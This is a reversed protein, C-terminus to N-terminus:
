YQTYIGDSNTVPDDRIIVVEHVTYINSAHEDYDIRHSILPPGRGELEMIGGAIQNRNLGTDREIKKYGLWCERNENGSAYRRLEFYLNLSERSLGLTYLSNPIMVFGGELDNWEDTNLKGLGKKPKTVSRHAMRAPSTVTGIIPCKTVRFRYTTKLTTTRPEITHPDLLRRDSAQSRPQIARKPKIRTTRPPM